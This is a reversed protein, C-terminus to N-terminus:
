VGFNRQRTAVDELVGDFEEKTLDPWLTDTFWLESYAGQWLLFNSLRRQGGTRIILDPDPMGATWLHRAFAGEDVMHAGEALLANVAHLIEPRGGYSAAIWLHYHANGPNKEELEHIARQLDEPIRTRDGAVHIALDANSLTPLVDMFVTRALDLLHRVEGESRNWNESSFAYVVLHRIRADKCWTVAERLKDFGREHGKYTPLGRHKAWRRNGDMVIGVCSLPVRPEARHRKASSGPDPATM